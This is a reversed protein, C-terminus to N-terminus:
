FNNKDIIKGLLKGNCTAFCELSTNAQQIIGIGIFDGERFYGDNAFETKKGDIRMGGKPWIGISNEFGLRKHEL